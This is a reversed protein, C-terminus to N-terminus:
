DGTLGRRVQWCEALAWVAQRVHNAKKGVIAVCLSQKLSLLNCHCTALDYGAVTGQTM